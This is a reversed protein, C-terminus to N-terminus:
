KDPAHGTQRLSFWAGGDINMKTVNFVATDPTYDKHVSNDPIEFVVEGDMVKEPNVPHEEKYVIRGEKLFVIRRTFETYQPYDTGLSKAM